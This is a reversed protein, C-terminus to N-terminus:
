FVDVRRMGATPPDFLGPEADIRTIRVVTYRIVRTGNRREIRVPWGGLADVQKLYRKMSDGAGPFLAIAVRHLASWSPIGGGRAIWLAGEGGEPDPQTARWVETSKWSGVPEHAGTKEFAGEPVRPEGSDDVTLGVIATMPVAESKALRDRTADTWVGSETDIMKWRGRAADYIEVRKGTEIRVRDGQIWTKRVGVEELAPLSGAEIREEVHITDPTPRAAPAPTPPAALFAAALLTGTLISSM